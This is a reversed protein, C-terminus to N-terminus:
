TAQYASVDFHRSAKELIESFQADYDDCDVMMIMVIWWLWWLWGDYDDCDVMMMM